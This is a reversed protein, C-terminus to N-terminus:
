RGGVRVENVLVKRGRRDTDVRTDRLLAFEGPPYKQRNKPLRPAESKTAIPTEVNSQDNRLDFYVNHRFCESTPALATTIAVREHSPCKGTALEDTDPDIEVVSISDPQDFSKSLKVLAQVSNRAEQASAELLTFFKDEKGLLKQLSFM